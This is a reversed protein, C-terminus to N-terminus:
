EATKKGIGPIKSLLNVNKSAIAGQFDPLSFHGIINLATKPGIGSLSILLDFLNREEKQLFGYLAISNERVVYSTYFLMEQSCPLCKEHLTNPTLLKYGVGKVDLVAYHENVEILIGKIFEYM